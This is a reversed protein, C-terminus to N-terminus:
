IMKEGKKRKLRHMVPFFQFFVALKYFFSQFTIYSRNEFYRDNLNENYKDAENNFM